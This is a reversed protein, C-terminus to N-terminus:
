IRFFARPNEVCIRRATQTLLEEPAQGREAFTGLVDALVRRVTPDLAQEERDNTNEIM